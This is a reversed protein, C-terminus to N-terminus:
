NIGFHKKERRKIKDMYFDYILNAAESMEFYECPDFIKKPINTPCANTNIKSCNGCCPRSVSKVISQHIFQLNM